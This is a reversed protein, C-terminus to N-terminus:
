WALRENLNEGGVTKGCAVAVGFAAVAVVFFEGVNQQATSPEYGPAYRGVLPVNSSPVPDVLWSPWWSSVTAPENMLGTADLLLGLALLLLSLGIALVSVHMEHQASRKMKMAKRLENDVPVVNGETLFLHEGYSDVVTSASLKQAFCDGKKTYNIITMTSNGDRHLRKVFEKAKSTETLEGHLLAKPEKGIAESGYGCLTRWAANCAVIKHEGSSVLIAPAKCTEMKNRITRGAGEYCADSWVVDKVRVTVEKPTDQQFDHDYLEM